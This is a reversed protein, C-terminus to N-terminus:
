DTTSTMSRTIEAIAAWDLPALDPDALARSFMEDLVSATALTVGLASAADKALGLDKSGLAVTFGPPAYARRAIVDGYGRYASGTFAADTLIDVFTAGDVGGQEMLTISEALAQIAHILNYNVGIKVLNAKGPEDGVRWTRKGMLDLYAQVRAVQEETGGAVINLQGAEAVTSRGLVPAAIYAVGAAAHSAAQREAAALSVTAHNVHISGSPAVALRENTFVTDVASDNALMSFIIGTALADEISEARVAGRAILEAAAEPSRNWVHVTHGADVLRGAMAAGMTGLGLFSIDTV